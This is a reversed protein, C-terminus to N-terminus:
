VDSAHGLLLRGSAYNKDNNSYSFYLKAKDRDYRLDLQVVDAPRMLQQFKIVEMGLFLPPLDSILQQALQQAWAIQVVGPVVPAQAFHGTFCALDLPVSLSLQQQGDVQTCTLVMPQKTQEAALLQNIQAQGLKSQSNSPLHEFLRWRRPLALAECYDTLHQRLQAIVAKRGQNRLAHIGQANLAVLAGLFARQEQVVGLRAEIIWPHKALAQELYPLSVRKEELKVLRDLRGLLTFQNGSLEVADNTQEVKQALWPSSVKLAGREDQSLKVKPLAEWSTNGQKFAIGGTESSGYIETPYFDLQQYIATACDQVLPGGSSFILRVQKLLQWNLNASMRKLLAPSTVWVVPRNAAILAQTQQQLDEPFPLPQSYFDRGACMPWIVRFLLGYIHQSIVSGLVVANSLQAGWVKELVIVEQQLQNLSKNILKPEGTSGSTCITLLPADLNLKKPKLTLAVSALAPEVILSQLQEGTNIWMDIKNNLQAQSQAQEDSPLYVKVGARWAALLAIALLQADRLYLAVKKIGAQRLGAAMMLAQQQRYKQQESAQEPVNVLNALDIWQM